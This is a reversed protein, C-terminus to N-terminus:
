SVYLTNWLERILNPTVKRQHYIFAIANFFITVTYCIKQLKNFNLM